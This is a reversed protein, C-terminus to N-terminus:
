KFLLYVHVGLAFLQLVFAIKIYLLTRKNNRSAKDLMHQITMNKVTIITESEETAAAAMKNQNTNEIYAGNAIRGAIKTIVRLIAFYCIFCNLM